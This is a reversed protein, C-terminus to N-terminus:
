YSCAIRDKCKNCESDGYEYSCSTATPKIGSTISKKAKIVKPHDWKSCEPHQYIVYPHDDRFAAGYMRLTPGEIKKNCCSCLRKVRPKRIISASILM